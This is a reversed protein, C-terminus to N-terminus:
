EVFLLATCDQYGIALRIRYHMRSFFGKACADKFTGPADVKELGPERMVENGIYKVVSGTYNQNRAGDTRHTVIRTNADLYFWNECDSRRRRAM